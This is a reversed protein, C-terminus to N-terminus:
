DESPASEHCPAGRRWRLSGWAATRVVRFFTSPNDPQSRVRHRALALLDYLGAAVCGDGRWRPTRHSSSKRPRIGDIATPSRVRQGGHLIVVWSTSVTQEVKGASGKRSPGLTRIRRGGAPLRTRVELDQQLERRRRPLAGVAYVAAREQPPVSPEFGTGELASDRAFEVGRSRRGADVTLAV